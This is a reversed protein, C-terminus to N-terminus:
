IRIMWIVSKTIDLFTMPNYYENNEGWSLEAELLISGAQDHKDTVMTFERREGRKLHGAAFNQQLLLNGGHADTETLTVVVGDAETTGDNALVITITEYQLDDAPQSDFAILGKDGAALIKVDTSMQRAVATPGPTATPTATPSPTPTATVVAPTVTTKPSGLLNPACICGASTAAIAAVLVLARLAQAM